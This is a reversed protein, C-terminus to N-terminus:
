GPWPPLRAHVDVLRGTQMQARPQAAPPSVAPDHLRGRPRATGGNAGRAPNALNAPVASLAFRRDPWLAEAVGFAPSTGTSPALPLSGAEIPATPGTPGTPGRPGEPWAPGFPSFPSSPWGAVLRPAATLASPVRTLPCPTAETTLSGVNLPLVRDRERLVHAAAGDQGVLGLSDNTGGSRLRHASRYDLDDGVHRVRGDERVLVTRERDRDEASHTGRALVGVADARATATRRGQRAHREPQRV